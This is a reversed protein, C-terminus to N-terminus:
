KSVYDDGSKEIAQERLEDFWTRYRVLWQNAGEVSIFTGPPSPAYLLARRMGAHQEAKAYLWQCDKSDWSGAEFRKRIAALSMERGLPCDYRHVQSAM